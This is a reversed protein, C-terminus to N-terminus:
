IITKIEPDRLSEAIRFRHGVVLSGVKPPLLALFHQVLTWVHESCVSFGEEENELHGCSGRGDLLKRSLVRTVDAM